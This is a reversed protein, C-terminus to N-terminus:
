WRAHGVALRCIAVKSSRRLRASSSILIRLSSSMGLTSLVTPSRTSTSSAATSFSFARANNLVPRENDGFRNHGKEPAKQTLRENDGRRLRLFHVRHVPFQTQLPRPRANQELPPELMVPGNELLSPAEEGRGSVRRPGRKRKPLLLKGQEVLVVLRLCPPDHSAAPPAVAAACCRQSRRCRRPRCNVVWQRNTGRSQLM